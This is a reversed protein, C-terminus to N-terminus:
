IMRATGLERAIFKGQEVRGTFKQEEVVVQGRLLVKAPVGTVERGECPNYDAPQASHTAVKKLGCSIALLLATRKTAM